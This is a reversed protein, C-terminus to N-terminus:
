ENAVIGQAKLAKFLRQGFKNVQSNLSTQPFAFTRGSWLLKGDKLNYLNCEIFYQDETTMYAPKRVVAYSNSYYSGFRNYYAIPVYIKEPPIYRKASTGFIAVSLLADCEKELLGNRVKSMDEFPNGMEPPFIIYGMLPDLNNKRAEIAINQEMDIRMGTREIM